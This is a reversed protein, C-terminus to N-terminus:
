PHFCWIISAFCGYMRVNIHWCKPWQNGATKIFGTFASPFPWRDHTKWVANTPQQTFRSRRWIYKVVQCCLRTKTSCFCTYFRIQIYWTYRLLVSFECVTFFTGGKWIHSGVQGFYGRDAAGHWSCYAVAGVWCGWVPDTTIFSPHISPRVAQRGEM